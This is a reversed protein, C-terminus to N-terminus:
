RGGMIPTSLPPSSSRPFSPKASRRVSQPSVRDLQAEGAVSKMSFQRIAAVASARARSSRITNPDPRDFTDVTQYIIRDGVTITNTNTTPTSVGTKTMTVM